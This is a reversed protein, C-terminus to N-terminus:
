RTLEFVWDVLQVQGPIRTVGSLRDKDEYPQPMTIAFSLGVGRVTSRRPSGCQLTVQEAPTTVLWVHNQGLASNGKYQTLQGMGSNIFVSNVNDCDDFSTSTQVKAKTLRFTAVDALDETREFTLEAEGSGAGSRNPGFYVRGELNPRDVITVNSVLQVVSPNINISTSIAVTAPDPVAKPAAYVGRYFGAVTGIQANGGEIGNVSWKTFADSPLTSSRCQAVVCSDPAEPGGQCGDMTPKSVECHKMEIVLTSETKVTATGPILQTGALATWDSFHTVSATLTKTAEDFSAGQKQWFGGANQSAVALSSTAVGALERAGLRFKLQVPRSFPQTTGASIRMTRGIAGPANSTVPGISFMTAAPLVGPPVVIEVRRDESFVSGGDPGVMATVPSALVTGVASPLVKGENEVNRTSGADPRSSPPSCGVAGLAAVLVL